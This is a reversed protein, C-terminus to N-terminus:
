SYPASKITPTFKRVELPSTETWKGTGMICTASHLKLVWYILRLKEHHILNKQIFKFRRVTIIMLILCSVNNQRYCLTRLQSLARNIETNDVPFQANMVLLVKWVGVVNLVVVCVFTVTCSLGLTSNWLNRGLDKCSTQAHRWSFRVFFKFHTNTM